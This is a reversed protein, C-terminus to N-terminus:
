AAGIGQLVVACRVGASGGYGGGQFLIEALLAEREEQSVPVSPKM